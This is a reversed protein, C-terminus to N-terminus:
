YYWTFRIITIQDIKNIVYLAPIYVRNGEIADILDDVGCKGRFCIEANNLKYEKAINTITEDSMRVDSNVTRNIM